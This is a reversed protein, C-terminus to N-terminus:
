RKSPVGAFRVVDAKALVDMFTKIDQLPLPSYEASVANRIDLVSNKGDIFNFIEYLVREDRLSESAEKIPSVGAKESVYKLGLPGRLKENRIPVLKQAALEEPSLKPTEPRLGNRECLARYHNWIDQVVGNLQFDLRAKLTSVYQALAADKPALMLVSEVATKERIFSRRVVIEAEQYALALKAKEWTNLYEFSKKIDRSIRGLGRSYVESALALAEPGAASAVFVASAVAVVAERRMTTPDCRDPTDLDSEYYPDPWVNFFVMPVNVLRDNYIKHDSGGMFPLVKYRFSDRSGQVSLIPKIFHYASYYDDETNTKGVFDAFNAVVDNIFHPLSDPTCHFAFGSNNRNLYSGVMDLNLGCIMNDTKDPHTAAYAFSGSMEPVWIFRITRRPREIEGSTILEKIARAIELISAAGSANDNAGPDFHCLHATLVFEKASPDTGPITAIVNEFQSPYVRAKVDVEMTLKQGTELLRVLEQGKRSSIKFAFTSKRGDRTEYHDIGSREVADPYDQPRPYFFSIVGLAGRNFVAEEHVSSPDSSTLVIKNKVEKGAFDEPRGEGVYVLEGKAHASNSWRCLSAPMEAFDCVKERYPSTMWVVGSEGDWGYFSQFMLYWAKGDAPYQEIQAEDLGYKKVEGLVYEASRHYAESAALRNFLSIRRIYQFAMDGSTHAIVSDM